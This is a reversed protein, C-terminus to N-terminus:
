NKAHLFFSNKMSTVYLLKSALFFVRNIWQFVAGFVRNFKLNFPDIKFPLRLLLNSQRYPSVCRILISSFRCIFQKHKHITLTVVSARGNM